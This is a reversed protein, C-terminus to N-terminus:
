QLVELLACKLSSWTHSELFEKPKFSPMDRRLSSISAISPLAVGLSYRTVFDAVIGGGFTLLPLKYLASAYISYPTSFDGYVKLNYDFAPLLRKEDFQFRESVILVRAFPSSSRVIENRISTPLSACCVVVNLRLGAQTAEQCLRPVLAFHLTKEEYTGGVFINIRGPEEDLWRKIREEPRREPTALSQIPPPAGFSIARVKERPVGSQAAYDILVEDTLLIRYAIRTIFTRRIRSIFQFHAKTERDLNHCIWVVRVSFVWCLSLSIIEVLLRAATKLFAPYDNLYRVIVFLPRERTFLSRVVRAYFRFPSGSVPYIDIPEPSSACAWCRSKVDDKQIIAYM